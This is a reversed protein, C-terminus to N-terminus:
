LLLPAGTFASTALPAITTAPSQARLLKAAPMSRPLSPWNPVPSSVTMRPPSVLATERMALMVDEALTRPVGSAVELV